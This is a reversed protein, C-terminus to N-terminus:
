ITPAPLAPIHMTSHLSLLQQSPSSFNPVPDYCWQDKTMVCVEIDLATKAPIHQNLLYEAIQDECVWRWIAQKEDNTPNAPDAAVPCLDSGDFHGWCGAAIMAKWFCLAFM